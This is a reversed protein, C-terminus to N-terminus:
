NQIKFEPPRSALYPRKAERIKPKKDLFLLNNLFAPTNKGKMCKHRHFVFKAEEVKDCKAGYKKRHQELRHVRNLMDDGFQLRLFAVVLGGAALMLKCVLVVLFVIAKHAM